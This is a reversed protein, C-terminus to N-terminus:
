DFMVVPWEITYRTRIDARFRVGDAEWMDTKGGSLYATNGDTRVALRWAVGSVEPPDGSELSATLCQVDYRRLVSDADAPCENWAFVLMEEVLLERSIGFRMARQYAEYLLKEIIRRQQQEDTPHREPEEAIM